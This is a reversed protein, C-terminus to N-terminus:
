GKTEIKTGEIKIGEKRTEIKIWQSAAKGFKNLDFRLKAGSEIMTRKKREKKGGKRVIYELDRSENEMGKIIWVYVCLHVCLCVFLCVFVFVSVYVSVSVCVSVLVCVYLSLCIYVKCNFLKLYENGNIEAPLGRQLFVLLPTGLVFFIKVFDDLFCSIGAGRLFHNFFQATVASLVVDVIVHSFPYADKDMWIM